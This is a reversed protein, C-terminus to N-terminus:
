SVVGDWNELEEIRKEEIEEKRAYKIYDKFVYKILNIYCNEEGEQAKIFMLLNESGYTTYVKKYINEKDYNSFEIKYIQLIYSSENQVDRHNIVSYKNGNYTIIKEFNRM